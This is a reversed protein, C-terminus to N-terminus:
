SDNARRELRSQGCDKYRVMLEGILEASSGLRSGALKDINKDTLRMRRKGYGKGPVLFFDLPFENNKDLRVVVGLDAEIKRSTYLYWGIAERKRRSPVYTAVNMAVTLVDGFNILRSPWVKNITVGNQRFAASLEELLAALITKVLRERPINHHNDRQQVYGLRAYVERAGGFKRVYQIFDPKADDRIIKTSLYGHKELLFRLRNLLSEETHQRHRREAIIRKAQIFTKESILAPCACPVKVWATEPNRMRPGKLKRSQRNWTSVGVYRENRLIERITGNHLRRGWRAYIRDSIKQPSLKQKVFLDFIKHVMKVEDAPGRALVMHDTRLNRQEGVNLIGKSKGDRGVLMRRFGLGPKGGIFYGRIAAQTTASHVRVSRERSWEAAMTRKLNKLMASLPGTNNVFPEACYEVRFKERRCIFEYYASEDTDQFRGWRSVDYVLIVTFDARHNQVDAILQVLAARGEFTLGSVGDDAYTRVVTMNHVLAFQRIALQQYAISYQQSETSMRVYEAARLNPIIPQVLQTRPM